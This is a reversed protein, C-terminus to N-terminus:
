GWGPFRWLSTTHGQFLSFFFFFFFFFFYQRTASVGHHVTALCADELWLAQIRCMTRYQHCFLLPFFHLELCLCRSKTQIEPRGSLKQTRPLNRKQCHDIKGRFHPFYGRTSDMSPYIFHHACIVQCLPCRIFPVASAM